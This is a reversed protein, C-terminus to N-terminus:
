RQYSSSASGREIAKETHIGSVKKSELEGESILKCLLETSIYIDPRGGRYKTNNPHVEKYMVEKESPSLKAIAENVTQSAKWGGVFSEKIEGFPVYEFQGGNKGIYPKPKNM